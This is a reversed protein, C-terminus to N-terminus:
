GNKDGQNQEITDNSLYIATIPSEHCYKFTYYGTRREQYEITVQQNIYKEILKHIEVDDYDSCLTIQSQSLGKGEEFITRSELVFVAKTGFMRTDYGILKGTMIGTDWGLAFHSIIWIIVVLVIIVILAITIEQGKKNM